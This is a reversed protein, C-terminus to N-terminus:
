KFPETSKIYANIGVDFKFRSINFILYPPYEKMFQIHSHFQQSQCKTCSLNLDHVTLSNFMKKLEDELSNSTMPIILYTTFNEQIKVNECKHCIFREQTIIKFFSDMIRPKGLAQLCNDTKDILFNFFEMADQQGIANLSLDGHMKFNQLFEKPNYADITNETLSAFVRKLMTFDNIEGSDTTNVFRDVLSPISYLLQFVSNIFCMAGTNIIGRYSNKGPEVANDTQTLTSLVDENSQAKRIEPSQVFYKMQFHLGKSLASIAAFAISRKRSQVISHLLLLVCHQVNRDTCIKCIQYEPLCTNEYSLCKFPFAIKNVVTDLFVQYNVNGYSSPFEHIRFTCVRLSLLKLILKIKQTTYEIECGDTQHKLECYSPLQDIYKYAFNIIQSRSPDTDCFRRIAMSTFYYRLEDISGSFRRKKSKVVYRNTIFEDSDFFVLRLLLIRYKEFKIFLHTLSNRLIESPGGLEFNIILRLLSQVHKNSLIDMTCPFIDFITAITKISLLEFCRQMDIIQNDINEAMCGLQIDSLLMDSYDLPLCTLRNQFSLSLIKLEFSLIREVESKDLICLFGYFGFKILTKIDFDGSPVYFLTKHIRDLSKATTCIENDNKDFDLMDDNIVESDFFLYPSILKRIISLIYAVIIVVDDFHCISPGNNVELISILVGIGGCLVFGKAIIYARQFITIDDQKKPFLLNYIAKITQIQNQYYNFDLRFETFLLYLPLSLQQLKNRDVENTNIIETMAKSLKLILRNSTPMWYFILRALRKIKDDKCYYILSVITGSLCTQNRWAITAFDYLFNVSEPIEPINSESITTT